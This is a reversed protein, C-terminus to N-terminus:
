YQVPKLLAATVTNLALKDCVTHLIVLEDNM